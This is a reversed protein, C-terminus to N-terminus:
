PGTATSGTSRLYPWCDRVRDIWWQRRDAPAALEALRAPEPALDAVAIHGDVITRAPTVDEYFLSGTALGAAAPAVDIDEDDVVTPLAAVTALGMGIGVSTDLASAITIDMHHARMHAAIDLVRRSGGLPAVKLVAVDAARQAAVEYPDSVKRISEDAAVRAFIGNRMLDARVQALDATSRCPQELYDIPGLERAAHLAEAVSWGGNADVRLVPMIGQSHVYDRIAAVRAKDEALSQGQEAVKIKFTRCGPYRQAIEVARQPDVAPITGNVEVRQRVAPPPGLYAAEIGASLWAAAEAPPYEVFPSFEGWGAPGDILLAERTTVGRFPVRLQLCVVHAREVIDDVTLQALLDETSNPTSATM